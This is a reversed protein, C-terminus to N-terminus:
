RFCDHVDWSGKKTIEANLVKEAVIPLLLRKQNSIGSAKM